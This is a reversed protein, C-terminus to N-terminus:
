ADVETGVRFEVQGAAEPRERRLRATARALMPGSAELYLVTAGPRRRLVEGLVWGTGGGLILVRPAGAPLGDLAARQAARLSGGFVLGALADYCWAIRDFNGSLRPAPGGAPREPSSVPPNANM